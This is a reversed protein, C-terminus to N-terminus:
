QAEKDEDVENASKCYEFESLPKGYVHYACITTWHPKSFIDRYQVKGFVYMSYKKERYMRVTDSTIPSFVRPGRNATDPTPLISFKINDVGPAIISVSSSSEQPATVTVPGPPEISFFWEANSFEGLAPTKGTNRIWCNVFFRIIEDQTFAETPEESLEFRYASIWARQDVRFNHSADHWQWYAITAYGIAFPIAVIELATKWGHMTRYWPKNSQPPNPPSPKVKPPFSSKRSTSDDEEKPTNEPGITAEHQKWPADRLLAHFEEQLKALRWAVARPSNDM